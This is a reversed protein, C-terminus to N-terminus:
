WVQTITDIFMKSKDECLRKHFESALKEDNFTEFCKIEGLTNTFWIFFLLDLKKLKM